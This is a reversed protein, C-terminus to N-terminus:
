LLLHVLAHSEATTCEAEGGMTSEHTEQKSQITKRFSETWARLTKSGTRCIYRGGAVATFLWLCASLLAGQSLM